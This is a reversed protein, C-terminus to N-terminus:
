RTTAGSRVREAPAGDWRVLEPAGREPLPIEITDFDRPVETDPFVARAEDRIEAGSCRSSLHTLALLRVDADAAIQAAQRATSHGTAAAREIDEHTFTAEHVLVDARHAVVVVADTPATDGTVVVKRGPRPEGVVQQPAVGDVTEGRQLRGFDPGPTVGLREALEADFRGPRVDEVLAYGYASTRHRVAFPVIEFDDRRVPEGPELDRITLGYRPRGYVPRMRELLAATGPPGHVTLPKERDRLEFSKLMGPLGLWHDAHLHTLFVDTLDALGVSRLLQRQTGEGCDVLIREAGRRVLLAPLGRRASPVSGATGAFFLSLDM